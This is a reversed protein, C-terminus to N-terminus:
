KEKEEKELEIIKQLLEEEKRSLEASNRLLTWLTLLLFGYLFLCVTIILLIWYWAM